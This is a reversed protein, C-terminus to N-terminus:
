GTGAARTRDVRRCRGTAAAERRTWATPRDSFAGGTTNRAAAAGCLREAAAAEADTMSLAAVAAQREEMPTGTPWPDSATPPTESRAVAEAWSASGRKPGTTCRRRRRATSRRPRAAAVRSNGQKPKPNRRRSSIENRPRAGEGRLRRSQRTETKCYRRRRQCSSHSRPRM